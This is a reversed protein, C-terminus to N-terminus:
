LTLGAIHADYIRGGAIAPTSHSLEGLKNRGLEQFKDAAAIVVVTGAEDTCFIKKGARVPSGSYKGGLREQKRFTATYGDVEDLRAKVRTLIDLLLHKAEDGDIRRDPWEPVTATAGSDESPPAAPRAAVHARPVSSVPELPETLWWSGVAM